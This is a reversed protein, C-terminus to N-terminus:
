PEKLISYCFFRVAKTFAGGSGHFKRDQPRHWQRRRGNSQDRLKELWSVVRCCQEDLRESELANIGLFAVVVLLKSVFVAMVCTQNHFARTDSDLIETCWVWMGVDNTVFVRCKVRSPRRPVHDVCQPEAVVLLSSLPVFFHVDFVGKNVIIVKPPGFKDVAQRWPASFCTAIAFLLQLLLVSVM